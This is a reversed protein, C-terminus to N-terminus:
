SGFVVRNNRGWMGVESRNDAYIVKGVADRSFEENLDAMFTRTISEIGHIEGFRELMGQELVAQSLVPEDGDSQFENYAGTYTSWTVGSDGSPGTSGTTTGSSTATYYVGNYFRYQGATIAEGTAWTPPRVPRDAAYEFIIIQGDETSTPTPYITLRNNTVGRLQFSQFYEVGLGFGQVDAYEQESLPGYMRWRTSQNWFTDYHYHSFAAPLAYSATGAALTISGSTFLKSWPYAKSMKQIVRNAIALLQRTTQDTSGVVTTDVEYGAEAAVNTVAELITV